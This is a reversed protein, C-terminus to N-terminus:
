GQNHLLRGFGEKGQVFHVPACLNEAPPQHAHVLNPQKAKKHSAILAMLGLLGAALLMCIASGRRRGLLLERSFSQGKPEPQTPTNGRM